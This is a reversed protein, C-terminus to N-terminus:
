YDGREGVLGEVQQKYAEYRASNAVRHLLQHMTQKDQRPPAYVTRLYKDWYYWAAMTPIAFLPTRTFKTMSPTWQFVSHQFGLSHLFGATLAMGAYVGPNWSDDRMRILWNWGITRHLHACHVYDPGTLDRVEDYINERPIYTVNQNEYGTM